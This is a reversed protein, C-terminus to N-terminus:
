CKSIIRIGFLEVLNVYTKFVSPDLISVSQGRPPGLTSPLCFYGGDTLM